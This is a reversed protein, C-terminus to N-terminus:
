GLEPEGGRPSGKISGHLCLNKCLDHVEAAKVFKGISNGIDKLIELDWLENPLGILKVWVPAVM